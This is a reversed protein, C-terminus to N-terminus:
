DSMIDSMWQAVKLGDWLDGDAPQDQLAQWLQAQQVVNVCPNAGKIKRTIESVELTTKGQSLLWIIHYHSRLIGSKASRYGRELEEPTLHPELKIRRPM